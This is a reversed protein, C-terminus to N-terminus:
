ARGKVGRLIALLLLLTPVVMGVGIGAYSIWEAFLQLEDINQPQMIILFLIPGLGIALAMRKAKSFVAEIASLSVDFAMAASNFLTLIWVSFFISEFREFFGGPVEVQKALEETPYLTSATVEPGFVGVSFFFVLLYLVLSVLVGLTSAKVAQKPKTLIMNYFLLIEFGLFSFASEKSTILLERWDTVFFPMLNHIDFHSINMLLLVFILMIVIPLFLTNLRFLAVSPGSVGYILVLLFVLCVIEIPTRDFLYLRSISAVGRTEFAVFALMYVAFMLTILFALPRGIVSRGIDYLNRKPFRSILKAVIWTFFIAGVGGILISIWGDVSNTKQIISRPLSLVGFGLVMNAVSAFVEYSDIEQDGYKFSKM